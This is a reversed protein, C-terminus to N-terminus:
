AQGTAPDLQPIPTVTKTDDRTAADNFELSIPIPKTPIATFKFRYDIHFPREADYTFSFDDLSGIFTVDYGWYTMELNREGVEAYFNNFEMFKRYAATDKISFSETPQAGSLNTAPKFVNTRGDYSFVFLGNTWYQREYGFKTLIYNELKKATVSLKNPNLSFKFRRRDRGTQTQDFLEQFIMRDKITPQRTGVVRIPQEVVNPSSNDIAM